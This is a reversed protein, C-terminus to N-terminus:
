RIHLATDYTTKLEQMNQDHSNESQYYMVAAFILGVTLGHMSSGSVTNQPILSDATTYKNYKQEAFDGLVISPVGTAFLYTMWFTLHNADGDSLPLFAYKDPAITFQSTGLVYTAASVAGGFFKSLIM